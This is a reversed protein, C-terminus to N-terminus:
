WIEFDCNTFMSGVYRLKGKSYLRNYSSKEVKVALKVTQSM